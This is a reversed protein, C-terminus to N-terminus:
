FRFKTADGPFKEWAFAVDPRMSHWGSCNEEPKYPAYKAAFQAIVQKCTAADLDVKAYRGEIMIALNGQELHVVMAPNAQLNRGWRTDSGGEFYYVDGVWAGWIPIAHPRNDPRVSAIWYIKTAEITPRVDGWAMLGESNEPVGYGKPMWPREAIPDSREAM